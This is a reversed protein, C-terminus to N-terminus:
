SSSILPQTVPIPASNQADVLVRSGLPAPLTLPLTVPEAAAACNQGQDHVTAGVDVAVAQASSRQRISYTAECAGSGAPAGHVTLTLARGSRGPEAASITTSVQKLSSPWYRQTAAVALVEAPGPVGRVTFQWAPLAVRGRDTAFIGAGLKVKTVTLRTSPAPGATGGSTLVSAAHSASILEYGGLRAPGSPLSGPMTIAGADFADAAAVSPFREPQDVQQGSAIVVPRIPAQVPFTAWHALAAQLKTVPPPGGPSGSSTGGALLTLGAAIAVAALGRRIPRPGPMGAM